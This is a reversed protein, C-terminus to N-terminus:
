NWNVTVGAPASMSRVKIKKNSMVEAGNKGHWPVTFSGSKASGGGGWTEQGNFYGRGIVNASSSSFFAVSWKYGLRMSAVVGKTVVYGTGDQCTVQVGVPATCSGGGAAARLTAPEDAEGPEYVEVHDYADLGRNEVESSATVSQPPNADGEGPAASVSTAFPGMVLLSAALVGVSAKVSLSM